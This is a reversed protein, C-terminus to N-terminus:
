CRAKTGLGFSSSLYRLHRFCLHCQWGEVIAIFCGTFGWHQCHTASVAVNVYTYLILIVFMMMMFMIMFMIMIDNSDDGEDDDDDFRRDSGRYKKELNRTHTSPSTYGNRGATQRTLWEKRGCFFPRSDDDGVVLVLVLVVVFFVVSGVKSFFYTAATGEGRQGFIMVTGGVMLNNLCALLRVEPPLGTYFYHSVCCFETWTGSFQPTKRRKIQHQQNM